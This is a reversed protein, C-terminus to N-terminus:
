LMGQNKCLVGILKDGISWDTWYHDSKRVVIKTEKKGELGDNSAHEWWTSNDIWKWNGNGDSTAGIYVDCNIKGKAENFDEESQFSAIKWGKSMCFDISDQFNRETCNVIYTEPSLHNSNEQASIFLSLIKM